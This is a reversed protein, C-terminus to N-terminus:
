MSMKPGLQGAPPMALQRMSGQHTDEETHLKPQVIVNRSRSNAGQTRYTTIPQGIMTTDGSHTPKNTMRPTAERTTM